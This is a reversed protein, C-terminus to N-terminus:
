APAPNPRKVEKRRLLVAKLVLSLGFLVRGGCADGLLPRGTAHVTGMGALPLADCHTIISLAAATSRIHNIGLTAGVAPKTLARPLSLLSELKSSCQVRCTSRSRNEASEVAVWPAAHQRLLAVLTM